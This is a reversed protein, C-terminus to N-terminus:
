QGSDAGDNERLLFIFNALEPRELWGRNEYFHTGYSERGRGTFLMLRSCGRLRAEREVESLLATAIGKGRLAERVFLESVYGEMGKLILFPVWHASIFGVAAGVAAEAALLLHCDDAICLSIHRSILDEVEARPSDEIFAFWGLELLIDRIAGADGPEVQRIAFGTEESM